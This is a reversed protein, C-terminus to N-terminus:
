AVPSLRPDNLVVCYFIGSERRVLLVDEGEGIQIDPEHPEVMVHHIHGHIDAVRARASSGAAARGTEIKGRRGVLTDLEVATTEDGPLIFAIPRALLGTAPLAPVLAGLAALWRDLPGGLLGDALAQIGVGCGAFAFLFIALWITFPVRGIGLFSQLGDIWGLDGDADIEHDVDTDFLDLLGFLQALAIIVMLALAVAFPLNYDAFLSM